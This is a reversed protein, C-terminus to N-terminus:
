PTLERSALRLAAVPQGVLGSRYLLGALEVREVVASVKNASGFMPPLTALEAPSTQVRVRWGKLDGRLVRDCWKRRAVVRAVAIVLAGVGLACGVIIVFLAAIFRGDGEGIAALSAAQLLALWTGGIGLMVDGAELDSKSALLSGGVILPVCVAGTIGILMAVVVLVIGAADAVDVGLCAAVVFGVVVHTLIGVLASIAARKRAGRAAASAVFFWTVAPPLFTVLPVWSERAGCAMMMELIALGGGIGLALRVATPVDVLSRPMEDRMVTRRAPEFCCEGVRTSRGHFARSVGDSRDAEHIPDPDSM